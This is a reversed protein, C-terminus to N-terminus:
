FVYILPTAVTVRGGSSSPDDELSKKSRKLEAVLWKRYNILHCGEGTNSYHQM